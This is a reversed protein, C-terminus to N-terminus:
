LVAGSLEFIVAQCPLCELCSFASKSIKVAENRFEPKGMTLGSGAGEKGIKPEQDALRVQDFGDPM